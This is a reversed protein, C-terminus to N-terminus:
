SPWPRHLSLSYSITTIPYNFPCFLPIRVITAVSFRTDASAVILPILVQEDTFVSSALFRVIGKKYEELEEAKWNNSAVRKFSYTSMGLPVEM